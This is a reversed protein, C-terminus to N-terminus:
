SGRPIVYYILIVQAVYTSLHYLVPIVNSSLIVRGFRTVDYFSLKYLGWGTVPPWLQLARM